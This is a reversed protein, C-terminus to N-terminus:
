SGYREYDVSPTMEDLASSVFRGSDDLKSALFPEVTEDDPVFVEIVLQGGSHSDLLAALEQKSDARGYRLGFTASVDKYDPFFIGNSSDTGIRRGDFFKDHTIKISRYGGNNMVLLVFDPCNQRLTALEQLCMMLSGDGIVGVVPASLQTSAGVMFSVAMGMAGFSGSTVFKASGNFRVAQPVFYWPQGADACVAAFSGLHDSLVDMADYSSFSAIEPRHTLFSARIGRLYRVWRDDLVPPERSTVLSIADQVPLHIVCMREFQDLRANTVDRDVELWIKSAGPNFLSPEWGVIQQHLSTGICIIQRANQVAINASRNGRQGVVGMYNEEDFNSLGAAMPTVVYPIGHAGLYSLLNSAGTNGVVGRGIIFVPASDYELVPTRPAGEVCASDRPTLSVLTKKVVEKHLRAGQIDLPLEVYVPGTRGELMADIAEEIVCVGHVASEVVVSLKTVPAYCDVGDFEFTGNQRIRKRTLRSSDSSKVQGAIFLVPLSDQWATVVSTFLNTAGPGTTGFAVGLDGSVASAGCASLGGAGEHHVSVLGIDEYRSVADVLHMLGGGTLGYVTHVGHFRLRRLLYDSLTFEGEPLGSLFPVLDSGIMAKCGLRFRGCSDNDMRM